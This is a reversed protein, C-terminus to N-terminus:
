GGAPAELRRLRLTDGGYPMHTFEEAWTIGTEPCRYITRGVGDRRVVDLHGNAYDRAADGSLQNLLACRCTM